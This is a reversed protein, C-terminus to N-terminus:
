QRRPVDPRARLEAAIDDIVEKQFALQANIRYKGEDTLDMSWSNIGLTRQLFNVKKSGSLDYGNVEKLGNEMVVAVPIGQMKQWDIKWFYHMWNPTGDTKWISDYTTMKDCLNVLGNSSSRCQSYSAVSKGDTSIEFPVMKHHNLDFLAYDMSARLAGALQGISKLPAFFSKKEETTDREMLLWGTTSANGRQLPAPAWGSPFDIQKTGEGVVYRFGVSDRVLLAGDTLPFFLDGALTKGTSTQFVMRNGSKTLRGITVPASGSGLRAIKVNAFSGVQVIYAATATDPDLAFREAIGEPDAYRQGNFKMGDRLREFSSLPKGTPLADLLNRVDLESIAPTASESFKAASAQAPQQMQQMLMQGLASVGTGSPNNAATPPAAMAKMARMRQLLRVEDEPKLEVGKASYQARWQDLQQMEEMSIDQATAGFCVFMTGLAALSKCIKM